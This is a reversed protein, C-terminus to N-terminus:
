KLMKKMEQIAEEWNSGIAFGVGDIYVKHEHAEENDSAYITVVNELTRYKGPCLKKLEKIAERKTM